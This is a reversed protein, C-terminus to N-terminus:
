PGRPTAAAPDSGSGRRSARGCVRCKHPATRMRPQYVSHAICAYRICRSPGTARTVNRLNTNVLLVCPTPPSDHHASNRGRSERHVTGDHVDLILEHCSFSGRCDGLRSIDILQQRQGQRPRM